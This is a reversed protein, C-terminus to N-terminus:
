KGTSVRYVNEPPPVVGDTMMVDGLPPSDITAPLTFFMVQVEDAMALRRSSSETSPPADNVVITPLVDAAAPLKAHVTGLTAVAFARIRAVSVAEAAVSELSAANVMVAAPPVGLTMKFSIQALSGPLLVVPSNTSITFMPVAAASRLPHVRDSEEDTRCVNALPVGRAAPLAITTKPPAEAIGAPRPLATAAEVPASLRLLPPSVTVSREFLEVTM